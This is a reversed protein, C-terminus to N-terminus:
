DSWPTLLHQDLVTVAADTSRTATSIDDQIAIHGRRSTARLGQVALLAAASKRLADYGLQCAGALDATAIGAAASDLHKSANAVLRRAVSDGPTIPELEGASLLHEIRDKGPQWTMLRRGGSRVLVLPRTTVETHFGDTGDCWWAGSRITV